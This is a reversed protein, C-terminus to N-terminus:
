HRFRGSEIIPHNEIVLAIVVVRIEYCLRVSRPMVAINGVQNSFITHIPQFVTFSLTLFRKKQHHVVLRSMAIPHRSFPMIMKIFVRFERHRICIKVIIGGAICCPQLLHIYVSVHVLPMIQFHHCAHIAVSQQIVRPRM